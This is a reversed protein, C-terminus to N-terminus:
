APTFLWLSYGIILLAILIISNSSMPYKDCFEKNWTSVKRFFRCAKAFPTNNRRHMEEFLNSNSGLPNRNM